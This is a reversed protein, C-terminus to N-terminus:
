YNVKDSMYCLTASEFERAWKETCFFIIEGQDCDTAYFRKEVGLEELCRNVENRIHTDLWDGMFEAEFRCEKGNLKFRVDVTGGRNEFNAKSYDTTIDTFTLEGESISQLGKLYIQYMGEVDFFESDFAYIQSSSPAWTYNKYDYVGSGEMELPLMYEFGFSNNEKCEKEYERMSAITEESLTLGLETLVKIQEDASVPGRENQQELLEMYHDMYEKNGETYDMGGDLPAWSYFNFLLFLTLIIKDM